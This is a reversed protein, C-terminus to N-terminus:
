KKPPLDLTVDGTRKGLIDNNLFQISGDGDLYEPPPPDGIVNGASDTPAPFYEVLNDEAQRGATLSAVEWQGDPSPAMIGIRASLGIALDRPLPDRPSGDVNTVRDDGLNRRAYSVGIDLQPALSNWLIPDFGISQRLAQVVPLVAVMGLDYTSPRAVPSSIGQILPYMLDSVVSKHTYGIGMRVIYEVGLGVSWNNSYEQPHSGGQATLPWWSIVEGHDFNIHSYGIGLGLRFPLSMVRNFDLGADFATVTYVMEPNQPSTETPSAYSYGGGLFSHLSSLGLQAPNSLMVMPNGESTPPMIGGMGNGGPSSTTLLFKVGPNTQAVSGAPVILVALCGTLVVYTSKM